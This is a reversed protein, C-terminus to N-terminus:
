LLFCGMLLSFGHRPHVLNSDRDDAYTLYSALLHICEGSACFDLKCFIYGFLRYLMFQEVYEPFCIVDLM